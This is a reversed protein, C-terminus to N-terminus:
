CGEFALLNRQFLLVALCYRKRTALVTVLGNLNGRGFRAGYIALFDNEQASQINIGVGYNM